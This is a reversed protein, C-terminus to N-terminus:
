VARHRRDGHRPGFRQCAFFTTLDINLEGTIDRGSKAASSTSRKPPVELVLGTGHLYAGEPAGQQVPLM